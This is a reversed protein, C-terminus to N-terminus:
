KRNENLFHLMDGTRQWLNDSKYWYAWQASRVKRALARSGPKQPTNGLYRKLIRWFGDIIQTGAKVKLNDGNSLKHTTVKAYTPLLWSVKGNKVLRKKQHVVNDHHMGPIKMKYAKAGDTHLIVNRLMLHKRALPEWERKKIPGPGPARRKTCIPNLRTLLLTSAAGRQIIGGCQEWSTTRKPDNADQDDHKGLDVEDAEVDAWFDKGGFLIDKEKAEVFIKRALENNAYIREVPKHDKDLLLHAAQQSVGTM